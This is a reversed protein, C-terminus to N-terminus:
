GRRARTPRPREWLLRHLRTGGRVTELASLELRRGSRLANRVQTSGVMSPNLAIEVDHLVRRGSLRWRGAYSFYGDYARAREDATADRPNPTSLPTRGGAMICASMHGDETYTLLGAADAGFPLTRREGDYVVEWRVLRWGGVIDEPRLRSM